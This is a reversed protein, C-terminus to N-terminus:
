QQKVKAADAKAADREMVAQSKAADYASQAADNCSKQEGAPKGDCAEKAIKLDGDAKAIAVDYNADAEDKMAGSEAKAVDEAGNAVAQQVDQQAEASTAAADSTAASVNNAANAQAEAVDKNTEEPTEQKNCAGLALAASLMILTPTLKNMVVGINFFRIPLGNM